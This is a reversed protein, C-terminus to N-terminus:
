YVRFAAKKQNNQNDQYRFFEVTKIKNGTTITIEMAAVFASNM